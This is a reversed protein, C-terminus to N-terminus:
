GPKTTDASTGSRGDNRSTILRKIIERQQSRWRDARAGLEFDDLEFGPAVTCGVLAFGGPEQVEGAMWVGRPVTVQLQEGSEPRRGVLACTHKGDAHLLHLTLGTGDYFHWV